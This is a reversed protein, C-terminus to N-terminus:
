LVGAPRCRGVQPKVESFDILRLTLPEVDAKEAGRGFFGAFLGALGGPQLAPLERRGKAAERRLAQYGERCEDCHFFRGSGGGGAQRAGGTGGGGGNAEPRCKGHFWRRCGACRAGRRGPEADIATRCAACFVCRDAYWENDHLRAGGAPVGAGGYPPTPGADAAAEAAALEEAALAQLWRQFKPDESGAGTAAAAAAGSGVSAM